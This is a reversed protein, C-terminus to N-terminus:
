LSLVDGVIIGLEKSKGANLELVYKAPKTNSFTEPPTKKYSEKSVNVFVDVVRMDADLYIIDIDFNMDKMWFPFYSSSEFVFLMGCEDCLSARDSLGQRRAEATDVREINLNLKKEGGVPHMAIYYFIAVIFFVTVISFIIKNLDKASM